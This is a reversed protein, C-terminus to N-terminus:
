GDKEKKNNSNFYGFSIYIQNVIVQLWLYRFTNKHTKNEFGCLKPKLIYIVQM